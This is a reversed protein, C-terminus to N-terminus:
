RRNMFVYVALHTVYKGRVQVTKLEEISFYPEFLDRLETESSFYLVTGLRTERYKGIGGFQPDKESFCLSLYSGRTKLKGYVNEVYKKRQAPFIHHLLEWDYSFDFNDDVEKLDGLVDAVIFTCKLGRKRANEEAIGIATPSIDVGTVDFGRGSLYLAYNGLGCGFEVAKCPRVSGNDLLKVLEDPPEEINWPIEEPTMKRYIEDMDIQNMLVESKIVSGRTFLHNDLFM